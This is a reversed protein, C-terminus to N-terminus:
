GTIKRAKAADQWWASPASVGYRPLQEPKGFMDWYALWKTPKYWCPIGIFEARLVRDLARCAVNLAARDPASTILGILADVGESKLGAVNRSGKRGAAEAGYVNNLADGPTFVGGLRLSIMDFDFEEVRRQYQPADVRRVTAEIGVLKLMKFFAQAHREISPEFDLKEITFPTGDPLLLRGGDRKCGAEILLQNAKRLMSRDQGSNDSVPPTVADGFAADPIKGRLPELLKLEDASPKGAAKMDSNEFYSHMRSYSSYMLNTNMWEYDFCYTMAERIRRDQFQKRRTNMWFMQPGQPRPDNIQERKVRGDSVAPFDYRTAWHISTVEERFNFDRAKFGEFAADRDRYYQYRIRDFNNQGRNVPLDAAWYDAVREFDIFRGSEFKGVKYAGSGLPPVLTTEEFEHKAYYAKSLISLGCVVLILTKPHKEALTVKLVSDSEAEASAVDRLVQQLVPHGKTKLTQLTWVFDAPTIPAGDHWRAEKRFQFRYTRKDASVIVKEAVLGYAADPEDLTTGMLSDFTTEMGAAGDGKLIFINLTNFTTFAQNFATSSIQLSLAGGKPADPNVYSFHRFDAKEKLDGYVSLGHVASEWENAKVNTALVASAALAGGAALVDRRSPAFRSSSPRRPM